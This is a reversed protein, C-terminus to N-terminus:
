WRSDRRLSSPNETAWGGQNIKELVKKFLRQRCPEKKQQDRSPHRPGGSHVEKKRKQSKEAQEVITRKEQIRGARSGTALMVGFHGKKRLVSRKEVYKLKGFGGRELGVLSRTLRGPSKVGRLCQGGTGRGETRHDVV